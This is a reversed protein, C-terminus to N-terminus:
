WARSGTGRGAPVKPQGLRARLARRAVSVVVSWRQRSEGYGFWGGVPSVRRRDDGVVLAFWGGGAIPSLGAFACAPQSLLDQLVIANEEHAFNGPDISEAHGVTTYGVQQWGRRRRHGPEGASDSHDAPDSAARGGRVPGLRQSVRLVPEAHARGSHLADWRTTRGVVGAVHDAIM